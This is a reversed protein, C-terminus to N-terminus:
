GGERHLPNPTEPYFAIMKMLRNAALPNPTEPYFAIMKMLWNAALTTPPLYPPDLM